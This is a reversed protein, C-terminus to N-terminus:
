DNGQGKAARLQAAMHKMDTLMKLLEYNGHWQVFDAGGMFAGHKATRGYYHWYDFYLFEIPEDFPEPTLLNDDRLKQIIQAAENVKSNTAAVVAEAEKYFRDVPQKTHCKLCTEKMEAQAREFGPRKDSKAAFLFWSLRETTDHTMKLGELGSMHCTSCTPVPMDATSLKKPDAHLNFQSKQAHFLVGHKSENYIELQAHDPGMHCQGCTEPQRALSVSTAHRSHCHTCSGFSGDANPKGINHCAICGLAYVGGGEAQALANAPRLVTGPHYKEGLEIQEPSFDDAGMVAAYAPAAHRSRVFQDYETTHCQRCNLSTLEKTLVFGSHAWEEQGEMPQHCDLCTVNASAHKSSEYQHVIASTERRHCEACKGSARVLQASPQGFAGSTEGTPRARNVLLAGVILGTGLVIAVFVSKFQM